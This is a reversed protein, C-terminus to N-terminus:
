CLLKEAIQDVRDRRAKLQHVTREMLQQNIYAGPVRRAATEIAGDTIAQIQAYLGERQRKSASGLTDWYRNSFSDPDEAMRSRIVRDGGTDGNDIVANHLNSGDERLGYKAPPWLLSMGHDILWVRVGAANAVPEGLPDSQALLNRDWRDCNAIWIDFVVCLPLIDLNTIIPEQIELERLFMWDASNPILPCLAGAIGSYRELFIPAIPIGLAAGTIVIWENGFTYLEVASAGGRLFKFRATQGQENQLLRSYNRDVGVVPRDGPVPMWKCGSGPGDPLPAGMIAHAVSVAM